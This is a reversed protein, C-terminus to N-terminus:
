HCSISIRSAASRAGRRKTGLLAAHRLEPPQDYAAVRRIATCGPILQNMPKARKWCAERRSIATRYSRSSSRGRLHHPGDQYSGCPRASPNPVISCARKALVKAERTVTAPNWAPATYSPPRNVIPVYVIRPRDYFRAQRPRSASERTRPRHLDDRGRLYRRRRCDDTRPKRTCRDRDPLGAM